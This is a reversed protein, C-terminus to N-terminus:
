MQLCTRPLISNEVRLVECQEEDDDLEQDDEVADEDDEEEIIEEVEVPDETNSIGERADVIDSVEEEDLVDLLYAVEEEILDEDDEDLQDEDADADVSNAAGGDCSESANDEGSDPELDEAARKATGVHLKS